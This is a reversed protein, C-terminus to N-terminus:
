NNKASLTLPPLKDNNVLNQISFDLIKTYYNLNQKFSSSLGQGALTRLSCYYDLSTVNWEPHGVIINSDLTKKNELIELANQANLFNEFAKKVKKDFEVNQVKKQTNTHNPNFDLDLLNDYDEPAFHSKFKEYANSKCFNKYVNKIDTGFNLIHYGVTYEEYWKNM